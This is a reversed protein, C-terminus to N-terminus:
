RELVSPRACARVMQSLELVAFATDLHQPLRMSPPATTRLMCLRLMLANVADAKALLAAQAARLKPAVLPRRNLHAHLLVTNRMILAPAIVARDLTAPPAMRGEALLARGVTRLEEAEADLDASGQPAMPLGGFEHAGALVEPLARLQTSPGVRLKLWEFTAPHLGGEGVNRGSRYCYFMLYPVAITLLGMYAALFLWRTPGEAMWSPLGISM